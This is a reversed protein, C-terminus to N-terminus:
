RERFFCVSKELIPPITRSLLDIEGRLKNPELNRPSDRGNGWFGSSM